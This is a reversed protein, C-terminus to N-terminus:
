YLKPEFYSKGENNTTKVETLLRITKGREHVEVVRAQERSSKKVPLGM